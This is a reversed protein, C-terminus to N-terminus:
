TKSTRLCRVTALVIPQADMQNCMSVCNGSSSEALYELRLSQNSPPANHINKLISSVLESSNEPFVGVHDGPAYNLMDKGGNVELEVLLTSRRFYLRLFRSQSHDFNPHSELATIYM